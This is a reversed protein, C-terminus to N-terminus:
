PSDLTKVMYTGDRGYGRAAYYPRTGVSAIVALRHFGATRAIREAEECLRTGLGRHQAEERGSTGLALAPGYVHVERILAAGALEPLIPVSEPAPLSLRLYGALRGEETDFSLFRERSASTEYGLDNLRLNDLSVHVDRVERCRICRCERQTHQLFRLAAERLNSLRSGAVIYTSPIDRFVRNIRCYLPVREKCAAVLRILDEDAYPM